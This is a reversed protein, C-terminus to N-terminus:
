FVLAITYFVLRYWFVNLVNKKQKRLGLAYSITHNNNALM